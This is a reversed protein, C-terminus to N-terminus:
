TDNKIWFNRRLYEKKTVITVLYWHLRLQLRVINAVLAAWCRESSAPASCSATSTAPERSTIAVVRHRKSGSSYNVRRRGRWGLRLRSPHRPTRVPKGPGM